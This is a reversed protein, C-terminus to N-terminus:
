SRGEPVVVDAPALVPEKKPVVGASYMFDLAKKLDSNQLTVTTPTLDLLQSADVNTFKVGNSELVEVVHKRQSKDNFEKVSRSIARQWRAAFDPHQALFDDRVMTGIQISDNYDASVDSSTMVIRAYGGGVAQQASIPTGYTAAVTATKLAAVTPAGSEVDVFSFPPESLGAQRGLATLEKAPAGTIGAVGISKGALAKLTPAWNGKKALPTTTDKTPVSMVRPSPIFGPLLKVKVGSQRTTLATSIAVMAGDISNASLAAV